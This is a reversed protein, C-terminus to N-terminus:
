LIKPVRRELIVMLKVDPLPQLQVIVVTELTM